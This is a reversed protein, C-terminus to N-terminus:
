GAGGAPLLVTVEAAQGGYRDIIRVRDDGHVAVVTAGSPRVLYTELAPDRPRLGGTLLPASPTLTAM